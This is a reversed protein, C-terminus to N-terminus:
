ICKGSDGKPMRANDRTGATAINNSNAWTLKRNARLGREESHGQKGRGSYDNPSSELRGIAV